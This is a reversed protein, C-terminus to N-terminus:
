VSPQLRNQPIHLRFRTGNHRFLEVHADLQDSLTDILRRGFSAARDSTEQWAAETIGPGNDQVEFMLGDERRLGIRLLPRDVDAYAYKFANTILENAILGLPIAVDADLEPQDIVLQLDFTDPPYGYAQMLNRALDSLFERMNVTSVADTQYLRQHILAMAQVRQQSVRVAEVAKEDELRRAQLRLLSSVIALNNKVRHHLERMLTALQDAQRQIKTRKQRILRYQWLLGGLLLSLMAVAGIALWFNRANRANSGALQDIRAEQERVQYRTELETIQRNKTENFLSDRAMVQQRYYALAQKYDGRQEYIRSLHGYVEQQFDLPAQGTKRSWALARRSAAEAEDLRGQPILVNPLNADVYGLIAEDNHRRAYDAARRFHEEAVGYQGMSKYLLGQNILVINYDQWMGRQRYANLAQQGYAIAQRYNESQKEVIALSSCMDAITTTDRIQRALGLGKRLYPRAKDPANMQIHCQGIRQYLHAARKLSKEQLLIDLSRHYWSLAQNYESVTQYWHGMSRYAMGLDLPHHTAQAFDIAQRAAEKSEALKNERIFRDVAERFHWSKVSDPANAVSDPLTYKQANAYLCFFKLCLLICCLRLM